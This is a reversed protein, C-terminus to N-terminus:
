HIASDTITNRVLCFNNGICFRGGGGFPLYQFKHFSGDKNSAFREPNFLHPERWYEENHHLLYINLMLQKGVPLHYGDIDHEKIVRRVINWVPPFHRLSEKIASQAFALGSYNMLDMEELERIHGVEEFLRQQIKPNHALVHLTWTMAIASTEHGAVLFTLLQNRIKVFEEDPDYLDMLVTLLDEVREPQSRTKDVCEQIIANAERMM